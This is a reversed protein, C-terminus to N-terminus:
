LIATSFVWSFQWSSFSKQSLDSYDTEPFVQQWKETEQYYENRYLVQPGMSWNKMHYLFQLSYWRSYLFDDQWYYRAYLSMLYKTSSLHFGPQARSVWEKQLSDYLFDFRLLSIQYISNLATSLQWQTRLGTLISKNDKPSGWWWREDATNLKEWQWDEHEYAGQHYALVPALTFSKLRYLASLEFSWYALNLDASELNNRLELRNESLLKFNPYQKHVNWQFGLEPHASPIAPAEQAGLQLGLCLLLFCFKKTTSM